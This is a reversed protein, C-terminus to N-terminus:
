STIKTKRSYLFKGTICTQLYGKNWWAMEPNFNQRHTDRSPTHWICWRFYDIRWDQMIIARRSAQLSRSECSFMRALQYILLAVDDSWDHTPDGVHRSQLRTIDSQHYVLIYEFMGIILEHRRSLWWGLIVNCARSVARMESFQPPWWRAHPFSTEHRM